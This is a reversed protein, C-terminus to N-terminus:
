KQFLNDKTVFYGSFSFLIMRPPDVDHYNNPETLLIYIFVFHKAAHGLKYAQFAKKEEYYIFWTLLSNKELMCLLM